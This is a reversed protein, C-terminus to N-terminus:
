TAAGVAALVAPGAVALLAEALEVGLQEADRARGSVATRVLGSGDPAALFGALLLRAGSVTALAGAPLACSGGLRRLFAHEARLARSSPADDIAALREITVHDGSRAELALCGQGPAPVFVEPDLPEAALGGYGLRRLGAAALAAADVRGERVARLRTDVNGRLEVVDVDPRLHRLLAARRPSASGVRMGPALAGLPLAGAAAVLVDRPDERAPVAALALGAAPGAPLDKASHVAVDAAGDLVARRVENTFSGKWGPPGTPSRQARDGATRVVLVTVHLEPWRLRLAGAVLEAQVLALASGRTAIRVAGAPDTVTRTSPQLRAIGLRPAVM